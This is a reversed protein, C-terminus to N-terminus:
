YYKNPDDDLYYQLAIDLQQRVNSDITKRSQKLSAILWPPPKRVQKLQSAALYRLWPDVDADDVVALLGRMVPQSHIPYPARELVVSRLEENGSTLAAAIVSQLEPIEAPVARLDLLVASREEITGHRAVHFVVQLVPSDPDCLLGHEFVAESLSTAYDYRFEVDPSRLKEAFYAAVQHDNLGLAAMARLPDDNPWDDARLSLLKQVEPLADHAAPGLHFLLSLVARTLRTDEHRKLLVKRIFPLAPLADTRLHQLGIAAHVAVETDEHWLLQGLDEAATRVGLMGLAVAAKQQVTSSPDRLMVIVYKQIDLPPCKGEAVAEIAKARVEDSDDYLAFHLSSWVTQRAEADVSYGVYQYSVGDNIEVCQCMASQGWGNGKLAEIAALRVWRDQDRVANALVDAFATAHSMRGFLSLARRKELPTSEEDRAIAALQPAVEHVLRSEFLVGFITRSRPCEEGLMAQILLGQWQEAQHPNNKMLREVKSLAPQWDGGVDSRLAALLQAREHDPLGAFTTTAQALLVVGVALAVANSKMACDKCSRLMM